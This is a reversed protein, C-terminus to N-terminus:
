GALRMPRSASRSRGRSAAGACIPFRGARFSASSRRVPIRSRPEPLRTRTTRTASAPFSRPGAEGVAADARAVRARSRAVGSARPVRRAGDRHGIRAAGPHRRGIGADASARQRRSALSVDGRGRASQAARRPQVGSLRRQRHPDAQELRHLQAPRRVRRHARRGAASVSSLHQRPHDGRGPRRSRSADGGEGRGAHRGGHVGAHQRRRAADHLVGRRAAGHTHTVDFLEFGASMLGFGTINSADHLFEAHADDVAATRALVFDRDRRGGGDNLVEVLLAVFRDRDADLFVAAPDDGIPQGDRRRRGFDDLLAARMRRLPESAASAFRVQERMGAVLLDHRDLAAGRGVIM